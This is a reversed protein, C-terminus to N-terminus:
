KNPEQIMLYSYYILPDNYSEAWQVCNTCKSIPLPLHCITLIQPPVTTQAQSVNIKNSKTMGSPQSSLGSSNCQMLFFFHRSDLPQFASAWMYKYEWHRPWTHPSVAFSCTTSSFIVYTQRFHWLFNYCPRSPSPDLNPSPPLFVSRTWGHHKYVLGWKQECTIFLWLVSLFVFAFSPLNITEEPAPQLFPTRSQFYLEPLNFKSGWGWGRKATKQTGPIQNMLVVSHIHSFCTLSSMTLFSDM